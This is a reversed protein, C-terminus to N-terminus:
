TLEYNRLLLNNMEGRLIRMEEELLRNEEKKRENDERQSTVEMLTRNAEKESGSEIAILRERIKNTVVRLSNTEETSVKLKKSLDMVIDELEKNRRRYATERVKPFEVSNDKMQKGYSEKRM